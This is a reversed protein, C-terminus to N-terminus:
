TQGTHCIVASQKQGIKPNRWQGFSLHSVTFMDFGNLHIRKKKRIETLAAM